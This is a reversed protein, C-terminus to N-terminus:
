RKVKDWMPLKSFRSGKGEGIFYVEGMRKIRM